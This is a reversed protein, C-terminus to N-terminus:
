AQTAPDARGGTKEATDRIREEVVKKVRADFEPHGARLSDFDAKSLLYVDCYSLARVSAMRREGQLLATEGFPSGPGLSAVRTDNVVVEVDGESLFYMCDGYEGQRIIFDDPMFVLPRLLRIVERMFPEGADRFLAVKELLGRNLFLLVEMSLSPPLDAIPSAMSVSKRTEWLYAYYDRVRTQLKQPVRHTRLFENAEEM